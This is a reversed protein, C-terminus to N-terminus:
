TSASPRYSPRVTTTSGSGASARSSASTRTLPQAARDPAAGGAEVLFRELAAEFAAPTELHAAHGARFKELRADPFRRMAPLSRGLQVFRDGTAWAFLVPCSVKPALARLDADPQAFGRWADRLLP